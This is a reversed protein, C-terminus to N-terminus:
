ACGGGCGLLLVALYTSAVFGCPPCVPAATTGGIIVFGLMGHADLGSTVCDGFCQSWGPKPKPKEKDGEGNAVIYDTHSVMHLSEDNTIELQVDYVPSFFLDKESEVIFLYKTIDDSYQITYVDLIGDNTKTDLLIHNYSKIDSEKKNLQSLYHQLYKPKANDAMLIIGESKINFQAKLENLAKNSEIITTGTPAERQAAQAAIPVKSNMELTEESEDTRSCAIFSSASLLVVMFFNITFKIKGM